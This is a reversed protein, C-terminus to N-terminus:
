KQGQCGVIMEERGGACYTECVTESTKCFTPLVSDALHNTVTEFIGGVVQGEQSARPTNFLVVREICGLVNGFM